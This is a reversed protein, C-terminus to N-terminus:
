FKKVTELWIAKMQLAAEGKGIKEMEKVWLDLFAPSADIWKQREAPDIKSVKVGKAEMEERCKKELELMNQRDHALADQCVAEITKQIDQPLSNWKDLNMWNGWGVIGMVDWLCVYPAVEYHKFYFGAPLPWLTADIVKKRLGEYTEAPFISVGVGGASSFAVPLFPGWTRVKLGKLDEFKTVPRTSFLQYPTLSHHMLLKLNQAKIEEAVGPVEKPIRVGLQQAQDFNTILFPIANPAAWLPFASAFYGTPFSVIDLTGEKVLDLLEKVQALTNVWFIQMKIKGNTRKLVEDAIYTDTAVLTAPSENMFHAWRLVIQDEGQASGAPQVVLLFLILFLGLKKM